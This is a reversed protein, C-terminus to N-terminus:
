RLNVHRAFDQLERPSRGADPAATVPSTDTSGAAMPVPSFHDM